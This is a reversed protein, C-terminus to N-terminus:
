YQKGRSDILNDLGPIVIPKDLGDTSDLDGTALALGADKIEKLLKLIRDIRDDEKIQGVILSRVTHSRNKQERLWVDEPTDAKIWISYRPM